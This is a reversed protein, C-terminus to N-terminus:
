FGIKKIGKVKDLERRQVYIRTTNINSHRLIEQIDELRVGKQALHFGLTHRFIHLGKKNIGAKKLIGSVAIYAEHRTIQRGTKSVFLYDSEINQQKRLTILKELVDDIKSKDVYCYAEKSGKGIIKIQYVDIDEEYTKLDSLKVNIVESARMGTFLLLKILLINRIFKATKIITESIKNKATFIPILEYVM